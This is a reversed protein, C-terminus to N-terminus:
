AGVILYSLDFSEEVVRMVVISERIQMELPLSLGFLPSQQM